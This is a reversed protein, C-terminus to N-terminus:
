TTTLPKVSEVDFGEETIESLLRKNQLISLISDITEDTINIKGDAYFEVGWHRLENVEKAKQLFRPDKYHGLKYIIAMKRLYRINNCVKNKLVEINSFISCYEMEKYLTEAKALMGERFNLSYEFDKKSLLFLIDSFYFYDVTNSINFIDQQEEIDEFSNDRFLLPIFGKTKQLKQKWNEQLTKVGIIKIGEPNSIVILYFKTKSLDEISEIKDEEPNLTSLKEFIIKFDTEEMKISRVLGGEPEPVDVDYKECSNSSDIKSKVIYLLKKSLREKIEVYKVNYKSERIKKYESVIALRCTLNGQQFDFSKVENFIKM